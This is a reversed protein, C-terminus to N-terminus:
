EVQTIVPTKSSMNYSCTYTVAREGGYGNKMKVDHGIVTIVDGDIGWSYEPIWSPKGSWEALGAAEIQCATHAANEMGKAKVYHDYSVGMERAKPEDEIREAILKAKEAERDRFGVLRGNITFAVIMIVGFGGIIKLYRSRLNREEARSGASRDAVSWIFLAGLGGIIALSGTWMLLKSTANLFELM